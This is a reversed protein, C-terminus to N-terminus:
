ADSPELVDKDDCHDAATAATRLPVPPVAREIAVGEAALKAAELADPVGATFREEVVHRLARTNNIADVLRVDGTMLDRVAYLPM